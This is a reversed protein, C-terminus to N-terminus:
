PRMPKMLRYSHLVKLKADQVLDKGKFIYADPDGKPFDGMCKVKDVYGYRAFIKGETEATHDPANTIKGHINHVRSRGKYFEPNSVELLYIYGFVDPASKLDIAQDWSTWGGEPLRGSWSYIGAWTATRAHSCWVEDGEYTCPDTWAHLLLHPQDRDGDNVMKAGHEGERIHDQVTCEISKRLSINKCTDLKGEDNVLSIPIIIDSSDEGTKRVELKKGPVRFWCEFGFIKATAIQNNNVPVLNLMLICSLVL